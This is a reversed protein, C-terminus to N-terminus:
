EDTDGRHLSREGDAKEDGEGEGTEGDGTEVDHPRRVILWTVLGAILVAAAAGGIWLLDGLAVSSAGSATEDAGANGADDSAADTAQEGGTGADGGCAFAADSGAALEVGDAPQWDFVWEGSIPHGDASVVRWGVTYEGAQGLEAETELIPGFVTGCGDNYHLGDPGVVQMIAGNGADILDDNTTLSILGPQATVVEGEAPTSDVPYNHASAAAAPVLAAVAIGLAAGVAAASRRRNTM